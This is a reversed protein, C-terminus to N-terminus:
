GGVFVMHCVCGMKGGLLSPLRREKLEVSIKQWNVNPKWEGLLDLDGGAKM